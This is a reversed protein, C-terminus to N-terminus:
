AGVTRSGLILVGSGYSHFTCKLKTEHKGSAVDCDIKTVVYIGGLGLENILVKQANILPNEDRQNEPLRNKLSNNTIFAPNIIVLDGPIFLSPGYLTIDADYKMRLFGNALSGEQSMRAEKLYKVNQKNFKIEKVIGSSKGITFTFIGNNANKQVESVQLNVVPISSVYTVVLSRSKSTEGIDFAGYGALEQFRVSGGTGMLNFLKQNVTLPLSVTRSNIASALKEGYIKTTSMQILDIIDHLFVQLPYTSRKPKIVKDTFWKTFYNVSIPLETLNVTLRSFEIVSDYLTNTVRDKLEANQSVVDGVYKSLILDMNGYVFKPYMDESVDPDGLSKFNRKVWGLVYDILDGLFFFQISSEEDSQLSISTIDNPDKAIAKKVKDILKKRYDEDVVTVLIKGQAAKLNEGTRYSALLKSNTEIEDDMVSNVDIGLEKQLKNEEESVYRLHKLNVGGADSFLTELFASYLKSRLLSAESDAKSESDKEEQTKEKPKRGQEAANKAEEADEAKRDKISALQERM